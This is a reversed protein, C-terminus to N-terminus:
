HSEPHCLRAVVELIADKSFPKALFRDVLGKAAALEAAPPPESSTLIIRCDPQLARLRVAVQLGDGSPLHYDVVAVQFNPSLTSDELLTDDAWASVQYGARGLIEALAERTGSDDDIVLIWPDM